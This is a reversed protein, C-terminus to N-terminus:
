QMVSLFKELLNTNSAIHPNDLLKMLYQTRVIWEPKVSSSMDVVFDGSTMWAPPKRTRGSTRPAVVPSDLTSESSSSEVSSSESSSSSSEASPSEVSSSEPAADLSTVDPSVSAEVPNPDLVAEVPIAAAEVESVDPVDTGSVAVATATDAIADDAVDVTVDVTAAVTDATVTDALADDSLVM